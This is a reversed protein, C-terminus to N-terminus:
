FGSKSQFLGFFYHITFTLNETAASNFAGLDHKEVFVKTIKVFEEFQM